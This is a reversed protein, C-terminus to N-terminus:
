VEAATLSWAYLQQDEDLDDTPLDIAAMLLQPRFSCKINSPLGVFSLTKGAITFPWASGDTIDILRVSGALPTRPLVLTTAGAPAAVTWPNIPVVQFTDLAQLHDYAPMELVGPGSASWTYVAKKGWPSKMASGTMLTGNVDRTITAAHEWSRAEKIGQGAADEIIIGAIRLDTFPLM